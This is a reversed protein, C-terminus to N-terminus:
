AGIPSSGTCPATPAGSPLRFNKAPIPSWGEALFDIWNQTATYGGSDPTLFYWQNYSPIGTPLALPSKPNMGCFRGGDGPLALPAAVKRWLLILSIQDRRSQFYEVQIPLGEGAKLEIAHDACTIYSHHDVDNGTQYEYTAGNEAVSVRSGDDSLIALQYFGPADGAALALQSKMFLAFYDIVKDGDGNEVPKGDAGIFGGTFKRTPFNLQNFYVKYDTKTALAPDLFDALKTTRSPDPLVPFYYLDAELGGGAVATGDPQLGAAQASRARGPAREPARRVFARGRLGLLGPV